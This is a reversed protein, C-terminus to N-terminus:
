QLEVGTITYKKEGRQILLQGNRLIKKYEAKPQRSEVVEVGETSPKYGDDMPTKHTMAYDLYMELMTYGSAHRVNNDAVNPNCGNASEWEDPMGDLDTDFAALAFGLSDISPYDYFGEADEETDIIGKKSTKSGSYTYTGQRTDNVLRLGVHDRPFVGATDLVTEFAEEATQYDEAAYAYMDFDYRGYVSDATWRWWPTAPRILTDVRLTDLPYKSTNESKVGKWNDANIAAYGEMINGDVFWQAPAWSTAGSRAVSSMFFLKTSNTTNPGPKYYNNIFNCEHASNLGNYEGEALKATNEGGYCGNSGAGYNYVVNNIYDLYVVWDNSQAGNFRCSRKENNVLLNHHYTAPSGGWQCGYGRAGKPHGSNNLGEHVICYQVTIFHSDYTNMNEETSWGFECHDIIYNSCNEAGFANQTIINGNADNRGIRFRLNRIIFNQSGGCNVKNHTIVIGMGPATQGAITYNKRNIRLDKVLRIEGSVAFCVTLPEDPYQKMAWRLSGETDGNADDMLTTVYVVQGGRGGSTYKGFGEAGPFAVITDPLITASAILSSVCCIAAM